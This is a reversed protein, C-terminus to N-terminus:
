APMKRFAIAFRNWGNIAVILLTLDVLEEDTFYLRVAQWTHDPIWQHIQQRTSRAYESLNFLPQYTTLDLFCEDISYIEQEVPAV